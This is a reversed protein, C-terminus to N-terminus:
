DIGLDNIISQKLRLENVPIGVSESVMGIIISEIDHKSCLNNVDIFKAHNLALIWQILDRMTTDSTLTKRRRFIEVGLIKMNVKEPNLDFSTLEPLRLNFDQEISRWVKHLDSTAILESIRQEPYIAQKSIGFQTHFYIRLKYFLVSSKCVETPNIKVKQYVCDAFDQLTSIKAAEPDPISMDFHKEVNILLEVSDLGM